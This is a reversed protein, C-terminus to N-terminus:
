LMSVLLGSPQRPQRTEAAWAPGLGASSGAFISSSCLWRCVALWARASFAAAGVGALATRAKGPKGPEEGSVGGGAGTLPSSGAM